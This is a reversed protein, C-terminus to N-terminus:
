WLATNELVPSVILWISFFFFIFFFVGCWWWWCYSCFCIIQNINFVLRTFVLPLLIDANPIGSSCLILSTKMKGVMPPLFGLLFLYWHCIESIHMCVDFMRKSINVWRFGVSVLKIVIFKANPTSNRKLLMVRRTQLSFNANSTGAILSM